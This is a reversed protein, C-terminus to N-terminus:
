LITGEASTNSEMAMFGTYKESSKNINENVLYIYFFNSNSLVETYNSTIEVTFLM